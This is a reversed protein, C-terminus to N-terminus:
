VTPRYLKLGITSKTTPKPRMCLTKGAVNIRSKGIENSNSSESCTVTKNHLRRSVTVNLQSTYCTGNVGVSEAVIAGDNCEGVLAGPNSFGNHLLQIENQNGPCDFASGRWITVRGAVITCTFILNQGPCACGM